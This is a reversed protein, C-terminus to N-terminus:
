TRLALHEGSVGLRQIPWGPRKGRGQSAGGSVGADRIASKLAAERQQLRAIEAQVSALEDIPSRKFM